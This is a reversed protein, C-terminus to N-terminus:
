QIMKVRMEQKLVGVAPSKISSGALPFFRSLGVEADEQWYGPYWMGPTALPPAPALFVPVMYALIFFIFILLFLGTRSFHVFTFRKNFIRMKEAVAEYIYIGPSFTEKM